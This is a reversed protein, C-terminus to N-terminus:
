GKGIGGKRDFGMHYALVDNIYHPKLGTKRFVNVAYNFDLTNGCADPYPCEEFLGRRLLWPGAVHHAEHTGRRNSIIPENKFKSYDMSGYKASLIIHSYCCIYPINSHKDLMDKCYEYWGNFYLFDDDTSLIYKGKSRLFLDHKRNPVNTLGTRAPEKDILIEYDLGAPLSDILSAISKSLHKSGEYSLIIISLEKM